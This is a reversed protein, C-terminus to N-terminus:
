IEDLLRLAMVIAADRDEADRIQELAAKLMPGIVNWNIAPRPKPPNLIAAEREGEPLRAIMAATKATMRGDRVADGLGAKHATKAHQITRRSVDAEKAMQNATAQSGPECGRHQNSGVRAWESCAVVAAAKQSPTMHRRHLNHTMVFAVPDIGPDLDEVIPAIGLENCARYRHWGDLVMDDFVIIPERQGNERMDNVLGAFSLDDM